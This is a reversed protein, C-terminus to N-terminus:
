CGQCQCVLFIKSIYHAILSLVSIRLSTVPYWTHGYPAIFITAM